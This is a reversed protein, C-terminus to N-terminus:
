TLSAGLTVKIHAHSPLTSRRPPPFGVAPVPLPELPLARQAVTPRCPLHLDPLLHHPPALHLKGHTHELAIAPDMASPLRFGRRALEDCWWRMSILAGQSSEFWFQTWVSNAEIRQSTLWSKGIEKWLSTCNHTAAPTEPNLNQQTLTCNFPETCM